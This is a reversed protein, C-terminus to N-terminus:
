YVQAARCGRCGSLTHETESTAEEAVQSLGHVIARELFPHAHAFTLQSELVGIVLFITQLLYDDKIDM